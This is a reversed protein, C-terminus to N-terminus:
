PRQVRAITVQNLIVQRRGFGTCHQGSGRLRRGWHTRLGLCPGRLPRPGRSTRLFGLRTGGHGITAGLASVPGSRGTRSSLLGDMGVHNRVFTDSLGTGGRPASALVFFPRQCFLATITVEARAGMDRPMSPRRTKTHAILAVHRTFSGRTLRLLQAMPKATTGTATFLRTPLPAPAVPRAAHTRQFSISLTREACGAPLRRVLPPPGCNENTTAGRRHVHFLTHPPSKVYQGVRIPAAERHEM